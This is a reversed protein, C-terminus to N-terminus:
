GTEQGALELPRPAFHFADDPLAVGYSRLQQARTLVAAGEMLNLGIQGVTRAELPELFSGAAWANFAAMAPGCWIQFDLARGEDGAIAWKSAQGLYARFVLAMKHKPDRAARENEEPARSLFYDHTARVVQEIPAKLIEREIRAREESPIADLSEHLRYAEYLRQARAAFMTGRRLVQVKVGLEFMDAAPAMTVDGARVEALLAKGRPSLGSEVAAQNVSGTLVYAAGMSFAAAIAGPTGLGGAAGVRIPEAYGRARAIEDRLALVTPLVVTLAQNDTHGGSDAEVTLDSAVPIQAALAAEEASIEGRALLADLIAAPAPELFRAAVEPRSVKAFLYNQRLVRGDGARRLGSVAFRVVMPTLEMYASASVRTVGRALYLAVISAELAPEHPSHILNSGYPLGSPRLAAEIENLGRAVREETLGAAGFFGLMGHRAAAIVMQATAIGNAMEGVVYPLRAGHVESFSRDGLWEPYLPPLVGLLPAGSAALAGEFAVGVAGGEGEVIFAAERCRRAAEALEAPAFGAPTEGVAFAGIPGHHSSSLPM